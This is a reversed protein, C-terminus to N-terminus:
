CARWRARRFMAVLIVPIVFSFVIQVRRSVGFGYRAIHFCQAGYILGQARMIWM